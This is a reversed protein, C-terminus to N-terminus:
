GKSLLAVTAVLPRHDSGAGHGTRIATVALGAGRTLVHDLRLVPPLLQWNRPWTMQFPHGRAAAADVFGDDLLRRFGRNGWTANFDGVVLL